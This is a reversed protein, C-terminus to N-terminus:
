YDGSMASSNKETEKLSPAALMAAAVTTLAHVECERYLAVDDGPDFLKDGAADEALRAVVYAAQRALDNGYKRVEDDLRARQAPTMAPWHITLANGEADTLGAVTISQRAISSFHRKFAALGTSM